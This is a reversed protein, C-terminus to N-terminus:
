GQGTTPEAVPRRGQESAEHRERTGAAAWQEPTLRLADALGPVVEAVNQVHQNLLGGFAERHRAQEAYGEPDSGLGVAVAAATMHGASLAFVAGQGHVVVRTRDGWVGYKDRSAWAGEAVGATVLEHDLDAIVTGLGAVRANHASIVRTLDAVAAVARMTADTITGDGQEDLFQQAAKRTAEGLADREDALARTHRRQAATLRLNAFDALGRQAILEQPTVDTDGNRVRETLADLLQQADAAEQQALTIATDRPM